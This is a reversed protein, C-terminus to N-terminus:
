HKAVMLYNVDLDRPHLKWKRALPDLVMGTQHLVSLGCRNLEAQVESPRLFKKWDHTGRPLIRLIYEAGLIAMLYSKATRNLTSVFLLGGPKLLKSLASVFAGVDAVHEIIELAVVIDYQLGEAALAEATTARYQVEVGQTAAHIRATAINKEAADVGTVAAGMRALPESMLGGGCGIDVLTKGELPHLSRADGGFHKLAHDRIYALRVPNIAHLPRFAGRPDWWADAMASFKAIEAEDVTSPNSPIPLSSTM